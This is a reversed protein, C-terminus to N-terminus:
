SCRRRPVAAEVQEVTLDVCRLFDAQLCRADAATADETLFRGIEEDTMLDLARELRIRWKDALWQKDAPVAARARALVDGWIHSIVAAQAKSRKM